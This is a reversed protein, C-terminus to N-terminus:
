RDGKIVAPGYGDIFAKPPRKPKGSSIEICVFDLRARLATEGSECDVIQLCREMTLRRDWHTIWTGVMLKDGLRTARLYHYEARILAMARDLAQYEAAGLGLSATHAWACAMCWNVYVANNTHQLADIDDTEVTVRTTFPAPFDWNM